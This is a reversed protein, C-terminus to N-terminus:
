LPGSHSHIGEESGKLDAKEQLYTVKFEKVNERLLKTMPTIM